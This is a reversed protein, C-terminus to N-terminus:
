HLVRSVKSCNLARTPEARMVSRSHTACRRLAAYAAILVFLIDAGLAPLTMQAYSAAAETAYQATGVALAIAIRRHMCPTMLVDGSRGFPRVGRRDLVLM